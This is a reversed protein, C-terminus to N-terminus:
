SRYSEPGRVRLTYSYPIGSENEKEQNGVFSKINSFRVIMFQFAETISVIKM